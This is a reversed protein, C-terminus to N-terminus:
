VVFAATNRTPMLRHSMQQRIARGTIGGVAAARAVSSNRTSTIPIVSLVVWWMNLASTANAAIRTRSGSFDVALVATAPTSRAAAVQNVCVLPGTTAIDTDTHSSTSRKLRASGHVLKQRSSRANSSDM